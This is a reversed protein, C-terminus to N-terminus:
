RRSSGSVGAGRLGHRSVMQSLERVAMGLNILGVGSVAGRLHNSLLIESYQPRWSFFFNNDWLLTWPLVLLILGLELCFLQIVVQTLLPRGSRPWQVTRAGEAPLRPSISM